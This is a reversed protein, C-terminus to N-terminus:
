DDDARREEDHPETLRDIRPALLMGLRIGAVAVVAVVVGFIVVPILDGMSARGTGDDTM